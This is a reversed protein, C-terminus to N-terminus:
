FAVARPNQTYKNEFRLLSTKSSVLDFFDLSNLDIGLLKCKDFFFNQTETQSLIEITTINVNPNGSFDSTQLNRSTIIIRLNKNARHYKGFYSEIMDIHYLLDSKNNVDNFVIYCFGYNIYYSLLNASPRKSETFYNTITNTCIESWISLGSDNTQSNAITPYIAKKKSSDFYIIYDVKNTEMHNELWALVFTSKGTGPLGNVITIIKESISKKNRSEFSNFKVKIDIKESKNNEANIQTLFWSSFYIKDKLLKKTNNYIANKLLQKEVLAAIPIKKYDTPYKYGIIDTTEGPKIDKLKLVRILFNIITPSIDTLYFLLLLLFAAIGYEWVEAKLLAEIIKQLHM